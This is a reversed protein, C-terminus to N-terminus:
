THKERSSISKPSTSTLSVSCRIKIKYLRESDFLSLKLKLFVPSTHPSSSVRSGIDPEKGGLCNM